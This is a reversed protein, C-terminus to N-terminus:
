MVGADGTLTVTITSGTNWTGAELSAGRVRIWENMQNAYLAIGTASGPTTMDAHTFASVATWTTGDPSDEVKMRVLFNTGGPTTAGADAIAVNLVWPARLHRFKRGTYVADSQNTEDTTVSRSFVTYKKRLAM